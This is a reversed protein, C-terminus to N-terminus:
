SSPCRSRRDAGVQSIQDGVCFPIKSDTAEELNNGFGRRPMTLICMYGKGDSWGSTKKTGASFRFLIHRNHNAFGGSGIRDVAGAARPLRGEVPENFTVEWFELPNVVPLISVAVARPTWDNALHNAFEEGATNWVSSKKASSVWCM